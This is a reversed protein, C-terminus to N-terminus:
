GNSAAVFGTKKVRKNYNELRKLSGIMDVKENSFTQMKKLEKAGNQM